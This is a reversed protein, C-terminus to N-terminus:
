GTPLSVRVPRVATQSPRVTGCGSGPQLEAAQPRISQLHRAYSRAYVPHLVRFQPSFLLLHPSGYCPCGTSCWATDPVGLLASARGSV